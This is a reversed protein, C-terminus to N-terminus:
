QGIAVMRYNCGSPVRISAFIWSSIFIDVSSLFDRVPYLNLLRVCCKTERCTKAYLPYMMLGSLFFILTLLFQFGMIFPYWSGVVPNHRNFSLSELFYM